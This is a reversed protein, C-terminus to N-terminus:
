PAAGKETIAKEHEVAWAEIKRILKARAEDNNPTRWRVVEYDLGDGHTESVLAQLVNPEHKDWFITAHLNGPTLDANYTHYTV